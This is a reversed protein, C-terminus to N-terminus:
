DNFRTKGTARLPHRALRYFAEAQAMCQGYEARAAVLAANYGAAKARLNKDELGRLIAEALAAPNTPDTLLGNAGPIIWERISELDGAVPLCGCAMGELLSNPTGDHTSPSVLLAARRYLAAMQAQPLPPLLEVADAIHYKEMWQLAQREGAMAACLFRAESRRQLVLPIARFFVDNRVYARFGRPNVVVPADVPREPPFFVDSRVGGNGPAVLTPASAAFGLERALRLDRQCDAHLATATMVTWATYHRMLPTSRAHLTFDNGWVSVVLPVGSLRAEAALMGEFPIRMAHVLDPRVRRIVERLRGAARSITLPGLWQRIATRLGLAQTSGPRVTASAPRKARSFAVPVFDLGALPLDPACAFTSALYVEDGREIWYRIWHLAIPSRGDAVFLLRM